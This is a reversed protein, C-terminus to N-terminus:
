RCGSSTQINCPSKSRRLTQEPPNDHLYLTQFLRYPRERPWLRHPWAAWLLPWSLLSGPLKHFFHKLANASSMKTITSHLIPANVVLQKWTQMCRLLSLKRYLYSQPIVKTLYCRWKQLRVACSHQTGQVHSFSTFLTVCAPAPQQGLARRGSAGEWLFSLKLKKWPNLKWKKIEDIFTEFSSTPSRRHSLQCRALTHNQVPSSPGTM